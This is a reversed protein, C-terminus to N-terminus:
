RPTGTSAGPGRPGATAPEIRCLVQAPWRGRWLVRGHFSVGARWGQRYNRLARTEHGTFEDLIATYPRGLRDVLALAFLTSAYLDADYHVLLPLHACASLQELLRPATDQFLGALFLVRADDLRPTRGQADFTGAPLAGWPEPLGTFTDLGIFRSEPHALRGAFWRLSDGQHVGFELFAVPRDPGGARIVADEWLAERSTLVPARALDAFSRRLMAYALARELMDEPLSGALAKLAEKM